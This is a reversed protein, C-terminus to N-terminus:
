LSYSFTSKLANKMMQYSEYGFTTKERTKTLIVGNELRFQLICFFSSATGPDLWIGPIQSFTNNLLLCVEGHNGTPIEWEMAINEM